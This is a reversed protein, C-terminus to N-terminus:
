SFSNDEYFCLQHCLCIFAVQNKNLTSLNCCTGSKIFMLNRIDETVADGPTTMITKLVAIGNIASIDNVPNNVSIVNSSSQVVPSMKLLILPTKSLTTNDITARNHILKYSKTQLNEERTQAAIAGGVGEYDDDTEMPLMLLEDLGAM